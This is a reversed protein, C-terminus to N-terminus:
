QLGLEVKIDGWLISIQHNLLSKIEMENLARCQKSVGKHSGAGGM